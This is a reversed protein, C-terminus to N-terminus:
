ESRLSSDRKTEEGVSSDFLSEESRESHCVSVEKRLRQFGHGFVEFDEGRAVIDNQFLLGLHPGSDSAPTELLTLPLLPEEGFAGSM